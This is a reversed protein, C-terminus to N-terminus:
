VEARTHSARRIGGAITASVVCGGPRRGCTARRGGSRPSLLRQGLVPWGAGARTIGPRVPLHTGGPVRTQDSRILALEGPFGPFRLFMVVPCTVAATAADSSPKM